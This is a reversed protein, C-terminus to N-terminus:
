DNNKKLMGLFLKKSQDTFAMNTQNRHGQKM